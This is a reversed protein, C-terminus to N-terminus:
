NCQGCKGNEKERLYLVVESMTLHFVGLPQLLIAHLLVFRDDELHKLKAFKFM